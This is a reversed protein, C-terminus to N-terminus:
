TTLGRQCSIIKEDNMIYMEETLQALDEKSITGIIKTQDKILLSDNGPQQTLAILLAFIAMKM